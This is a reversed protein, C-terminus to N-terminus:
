GQIDILSRSPGPPPKCTSCHASLHQPHSHLASHLPSPLPAASCSQAPLASTSQEQTCGPSHLGTWAVSGLLSSCPWCPRRSCGRGALNGSRRMSALRLHSVQWTMMSCAHAAQKQVECERHQWKLHTCQEAATNGLLQMRAIHPGLLASNYYLAQKNQLRAPRHSSM